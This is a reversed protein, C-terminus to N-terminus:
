EGIPLPRSEPHESRTRTSSGSVTLRPHSALDHLTSLEGLSFDMYEVLRATLQEEPLTAQFCFESIDPLVLDRQDLRGSGTGTVLHLTRLPAFVWPRKDAHQVCIVARAGDARKHLISAPADFRARDLVGGPRGHAVDAAFRVGDTLKTDFTWNEDPASSRPVAWLRPRYLGHDSMTGQHREIALAGASSVAIAIVPTGRAGDQVFVAEGADVFRRGPYTFEAPPVTLDSWGVVDVLGGGFSYSAAVPQSEDVVVVHGEIMTIFGPWLIRATRTSPPELLGHPEM